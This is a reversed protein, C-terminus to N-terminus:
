KKKKPAPYTSLELVCGLNPHKPTGGTIDAVHAATMVDEKTMLRIVDAAVKDNLRGFCDPLSLEKGRGSCVLYVTTKNGSEGADWILRVKAGKKLKRLAAQRDSGDVNRYETGVAATRFRKIYDDDKRKCFIEKLDVQIHKPKKSPIFIGELKDLLGM